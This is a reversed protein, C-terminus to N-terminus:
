LVKFWVVLSSLLSSLKFLSWPHLCGGLLQLTIQIVKFSKALIIALCATFYDRTIYWGSNKAISVINDNNFAVIKFLLFVKYQLKQHKGQNQHFSQLMIHFSNEHFTDAIIYSISSNFPLYKRM